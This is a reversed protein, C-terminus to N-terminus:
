WIWVSGWEGNEAVKAASGIILTGNSAKLQDIILEWVRMTGRVYLNDINMNWKNVEDKWIAFGTGGYIDTDAKSDSSIKRIGTIYEVDLKPFKVADRDRVPQNLKDRAGFKKERSLELDGIREKRDMFNM